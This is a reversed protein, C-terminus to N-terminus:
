FPVDGPTPNGSPQTTGPKPAAPKVPHPAVAAAGEAGEVALACRFGLYALRKDADFGQRSCVIWDKSGGKVVYQISRSGKTTPGTPDEIVVNRMKQFYRPDYWDRVWEMVNGALDFAGCPSVDEPFSMVADVQRWARPRSWHAPQDGWPYRRSDGSRAAMEWQAETPLRKGAWLAFAEADKHTVMAVPFDSQGKDELLPKGGPKASHKEDEVYYRFQRNTVEHQDIYFTSVRVAHAPGDPADDRDNGMTFTGGPVLVM